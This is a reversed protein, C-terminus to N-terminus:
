VYIQGQLQKIIELAQVVSIEKDEGNITIKVTM